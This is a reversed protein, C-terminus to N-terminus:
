LWLVNESPEPGGGSPLHRWGVLNRVTKSVVRPAGGAVLFDPLGVVGFKIDVSGGLGTHANQVIDVVVADCPM